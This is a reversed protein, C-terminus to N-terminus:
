LHQKLYTQHDQATYNSLFYEQGIDFVVKTPIRNGHCDHYPEKDYDIAVSRATVSDGNYVRVNCWHGNFFTYKKGNVTKYKHQNM